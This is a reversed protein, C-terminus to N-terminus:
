WVNRMGLIIMGAAIILMIACVFERAVIMGLSWFLDFFNISENIFMLYINYIGITFLFLMTIFSAPVLLIGLIILFWGLLKYM